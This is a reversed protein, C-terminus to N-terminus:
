SPCIRACRAEFLASEGIQAMKHEDHDPLRALATLNERAEIARAGAVAFANPEM